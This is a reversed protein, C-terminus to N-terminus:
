LLLNLCIFEIADILGLRLWSQTFGGCFYLLLEASLM